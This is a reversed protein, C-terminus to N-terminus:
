KFLISPDKLVDKTIFMAFKPNEQLRRVCYAYWSAGFPVYVRVRHGRQLLGERIESRVGLLMQFEYDTKKLGIRTILKEAGAVIPDDHTAIAIRYKPNPLAHELLRLYSANVEEYKQFAVQEPERYIGKCIRISPAVDELSRLDDFTRRLMAQLVIGINSVGNSRLRKFATLTQDTTSSDEMDIRVFIGLEKARNAVRNMNAEFLAPDLSLGFHTPKVSINADLKHHHISDLVELYTKVSADAEEKTKISEGLFDITTLCGCKNLRRTEEVANKVQEGAIYKAAVKRIIPKPIFKLSNGLAKDILGM